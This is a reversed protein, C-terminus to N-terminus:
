FEVALALQPVLYSLRTKDAFPSVETPDLVMSWYTANVGFRFPGLLKFTYGANIAFGQGERTVGAASQRVWPLYSATLEFGKLLFGGRPGWGTEGVGSFSTRSTLYHGGLYFGQLFHYGATTSTLVRVDSSSAPGQTVRTQSAIAATQIWVGAQAPRALGSAIAVLGFALTAPAIVRPTFVKRLTLQM